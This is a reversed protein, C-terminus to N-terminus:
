GYKLTNIESFRPDMHSSDEGNTRVSDAFRRTKLKWLGEPIAEMGSNM